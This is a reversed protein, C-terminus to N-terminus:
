PAVMRAFFPTTCVDTTGVIELAVTGDNVSFIRMNDSGQHTVVLLDGDPSLSFDHDTVLLDAHPEASL